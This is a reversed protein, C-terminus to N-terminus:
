KVADTIFNLLKDKEEPPIDAVEGRAKAQEFAKECAAGLDTLYDDFLRKFEAEEDTDELKQRNEDM